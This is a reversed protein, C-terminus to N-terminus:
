PTKRESLHLSANILERFTDKERLSASILERFTDKERIGLLNLEQQALSEERRVAVLDVRQAHEGARWASLTAEGAVLAKRGRPADGRRRLGQLWKASTAEGGLAVDGWGGRGLAHPGGAAARRPASHVNNEHAADRQAAARPSSRQPRPTRARRASECDGKRVHGRECGEEFDSFFM